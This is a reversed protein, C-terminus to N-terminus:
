EKLDTYLKSGDASKVPAIANTRLRYIAKLGVFLGHTDNRDAMAQLEEAKRNWWGDKFDRIKRQITVKIEKFTALSRPSNERLHDIHLKHKEQLLDQIDAIHDQFWDPSKTEPHGLM